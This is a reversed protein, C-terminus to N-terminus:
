EVRIGKISGGNKVRYLAQRYEKTLHELTDKHDSSQNTNDLTLRGKVMRFNDRDAKDKTRLKILYHAKLVFLSADLKNPEINFSGFEVEYGRAWDIEVYSVADEIYGILIDDEFTYPEETDGIRRRLMEVMQYIDM